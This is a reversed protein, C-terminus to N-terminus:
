VSLMLYESKSRLLYKEGCFVKEEKKSDNPSKAAASNSAATADDMKSAAVYRSTQAEPDTM